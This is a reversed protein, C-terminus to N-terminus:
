ILIKPYCMKIAEFVLCKIAFTDLKQVVLYHSSECM